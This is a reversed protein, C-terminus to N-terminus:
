GCLLKELNKEVRTFEKYKEKHQRKTEKLFLLFDDYKKWSLHLPNLFHLRKEYKEVLKIFSEEKKIQPIPYLGFFNSQNVKNYEEHFQSVFEDLKKEKYNGIKVQLKRLGIALLGAGGLSGITVWFYEWTM